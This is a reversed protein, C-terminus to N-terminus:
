LGVDITEAQKRIKAHRAKQAAITQEMPSLEKVEKMLQNIEERREKQEQEKQATRLESEKEIEKDQAKGWKDLFSFFEERSQHKDIAKDVKREYYAADRHLPIVTGVPALAGLDDKKPAKVTPFAIVNTKGNLLKYLAIRNDWSNNKYGKAKYAKKEEKSLKAFAQKNYAGLEAYTMGEFMRIHASKHTSNVCKYVKTSIGNAHLMNIINIINDWGNNKLGSDKILLDVRANSKRTTTFFSQLTRYLNAM